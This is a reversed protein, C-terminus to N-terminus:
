FSVVVFEITASSPVYPSQGNLFWSYVGEEMWSDRHFDFAVTSNQVLFLDPYDVCESNQLMMRYCLSILQHLHFCFFILVFFFQCFNSIWSVKVNDTPHWAMKKVHSGGWDRVASYVACEFKAKENKVGM